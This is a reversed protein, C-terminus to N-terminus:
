DFGPRGLSIQEPGRRTRTQRLVETLSCRHIKFALKAQKRAKPGTRIKILENPKTKPGLGTRRRRGTVQQAAIPLPKASQDM